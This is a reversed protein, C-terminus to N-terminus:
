IHKWMLNLLQIDFLHYQLNELFELKSSREMGM